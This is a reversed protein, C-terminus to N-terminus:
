CMEGLDRWEETHVGVDLERGCGECYFTGSRRDPPFETSEGHEDCSVRIGREEGDLLEVSYSTM